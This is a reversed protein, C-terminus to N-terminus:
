NDMENLLKKARKFRPYIQEYLEVNEGVPKVKFTKEVMSDAAEKTNNFYGLSVAALLAVGLVSDSKVGTLPRGLIDAVIQRWVPNQSGGGTFHLNEWSLGLQNFKQSVEKLAFATGEFLSRIFDAQENHRNLNLFAGFVSGSSQYTKMGLLYPMFLVGNAGVPSDSALSTIKQYIEPDNESGPYFNEILWKVNDGGCKTMGGTVFMDDVYSYCFMSNTYLTKGTLPQNITTRMVGNTSLSVIGQGLGVIGAGLTAAAGDNLGAIIKVPSPLNIKRQLEPNLLGVVSDSPVSEPLLEPDIGLVDLLPQNEHKTGPSSSPEDVPVGALYANLYGKTDFLFSAQDLMDKRNQVAWYLQAGFSSEPIGLGIWDDGALQVLPKILESSRQDQWTPCRWLPQYNKDAPIMCPGHCSLSIAEIRKSDKGLQFVLESLVEIIAAGWEIPDQEAWGPHPRYTKINVHSSGAVAGDLEFAYAKCLTTGLDLGIILPDM